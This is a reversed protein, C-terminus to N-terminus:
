KKREKACKPCMARRRVGEGSPVDYLWQWEDPLTEVEIDVELDGGGISFEGLEVVYEQTTECGSMDCVAILKVYIV